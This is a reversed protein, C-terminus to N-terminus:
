EHKTDIISVDARWPLVSDVFPTVKGHIRDISWHVVAGYSGSSFQGGAAELLPLGKAYRRNGIAKLAEAKVDAAEFRDNLLGPFLGFVKDPNSVGVVGVVWIAAARTESSTTKKPFIAAAVDGAPQYGVKGAAVLAEVAADFRIAMDPSDALTSQDIARKVTQVLASGAAVDGIQGMSIAAQKVVLWEADNLLQLHQDYGAHSALMGLLYSGDERRRPDANTLLGAAAPETAQGIAVLAARAAEHLPPYDTALAKVLPGIADATPLKALLIAAATRVSEDADNLMAIGRAQAQAAPVLDVLAALAQRRVTPHENELLYIVAKAHGTAKLAALADIAAIRTPIPGSLLAAVADAASEDGIRGIARLALVRIAQNDANLRAEVGATQDSTAMTLAAAVVATNADNLGAVVLDGRGIAGAARVAQARVAPVEDTMLRAVTEGSEPMKLEALAMAVATRVQPDTDAAARLLPVLAQPLQTSGLDTVLVTRREVTQGPRALDAALLEVTRPSTDNRRVPPPLQIPNMGYPLVTDLSPLTTPAPDAAWLPGAFM